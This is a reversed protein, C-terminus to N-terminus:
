SAEKLQNLREIVEKRSDVLCRRCLEVLKIMTVFWEKHKALYEIQSFRYDKYKDLLAAFEIEMKITYSQVIHMLYLFFLPEKMTNVRIAPIEKMYKALLEEEEPTLNDETKKLVPALLKEGFEGLIELGRKYEDIVWQVFEDTEDIRDVIRELASIVEQRNPWSLNDRIIETAPIPNQLYIRAVEELRMIKTGAIRAGGETANICVGKYEAVDLEFHKLFMYWTSNTLVTEEYNGPVEFAGKPKISDTGYVSGRVHSEGSPAFALDQGVLIIPNCGLAEAIKFSMNACSAGIRLIGKDIGIWKFHAFDRYTVITKGNYAAYSEPRIVPCAALYTNELEEAPIGEFFPVVGMVRELSSVLHPHIGEKLLPKLTADCCLILARDQLKKLVHINKSLSPGSAVCIAPKGQFKGFLQNMGPNEAIILLNKMINELGILSDHPDNGFFIVTERVADKLHRLVGKYYDTYIHWSPPHEVVKITKAYYKRDGVEMYKRMPPYLRDLPIGALIEVKPSALLPVLDIHSLAERLVRLDKEIILMHKLTNSKNTLFGMPYYGMGFGLFVVFQPYRFDENALVQKVELRPDDSHFMIKKSGHRFELNPPYGPGKFVTRVKPDKKTRELAAALEPWRQKIVSLNRAFIEKTLRTSKPKIHKKM